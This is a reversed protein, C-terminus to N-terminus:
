PQLSMLISASAPPVAATFAALLSVWWPLRVGASCAAAAAFFVAPGPLFVLLKSARRQPFSSMIPLRNRAGQVLQRLLLFPILLDFM